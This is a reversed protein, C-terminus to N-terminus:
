TSPHKAFRNRQLLTVPHQGLSGKQKAARDFALLRYVSVSGLETEVKGLITAINRGIAPDEGIAEATAERALSANRDVIVEIWFAQNQRKENQM